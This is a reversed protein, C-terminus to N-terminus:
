SRVLQPLTDGVMEALSTFANLFQDADPPTVVCLVIIRFTDGGKEDITDIGM